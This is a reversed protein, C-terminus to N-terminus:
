KEQKNLQNYVTQCEQHISHYTTETAHREGYWIREYGLTIKRVEPAFSQKSLETLYDLNTKDKKWQIIKHEHLTKLLDLYVLRIALRYNKANIAQTMLSETELNEIDDVEEIQQVLLINKKVRSDLKINRVVVFILALVILILIIFSIIRLVNSNWPSSKLPIRDKKEEEPEKLQKEDFRQDGVVKEWDSESLKRKSINEKLYESAGPLENPKILVHEEETSSSDIDLYDEAVVWTSDFEQAYAPIVFIFFLLVLYRSYIM